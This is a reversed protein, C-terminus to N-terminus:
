LVPSIGPNEKCCLVIGNSVSAIDFIASKSVILIIHNEDTDREKIELTPSSAREV